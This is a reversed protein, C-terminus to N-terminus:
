LAFDRKDCACAVADAKRNCGAHCLGARRDYEVIDLLLEDIFAEGSVFLGSDLRVAIHAVYRVFVGHLRQYLLNGGFHAHNINQHVIRANDLANGHALHRGRLEALHHVDIQVSRKDYALGHDGGHNFLAVALNDVDARHHALQAAFGYAGVRRGLAAQFHQRAVDGALVAFVVDLAIADARAINFRRLRRRQALALRVAATM